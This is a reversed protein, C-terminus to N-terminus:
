KQILRIAEQIKKNLDRGILHTGNPTFVFVSNKFPYYGFFDIVGNDRKKIAIPINFQEDYVILNSADSVYDSIEQSKLKWKNKSIVGIVKEGSLNKITCDILLRYNDDIQFGFEYADFDLEEENGFNYLSKFPKYTIGKKLEDLRYYIVDSGFNLGIQQSAIINQDDLLIGSIFTKEEFKEHESKLFDPKGKDVWEIAQYIVTVVSLFAFGKVAIKSYKNWWATAKKEKIIENSENNRRRSIRNTKKGKRKKM